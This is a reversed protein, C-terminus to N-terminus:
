GRGVRRRPPESDGENISAHGNAGLYRGCYSGQFRLERFDICSGTAAPHGDGCPQVCWTAPFPRARAQRRTDRKTDHDRTATRAAAHGSFHRRCRM